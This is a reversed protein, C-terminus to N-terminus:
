PMGPDLDAAAGSYADGGTRGGIAESGGRFGAYSKNLLVFLVFVVLIWFVINLRM